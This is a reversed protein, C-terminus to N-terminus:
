QHAPLWLHQSDRSPPWPEHFNSFWQELHYQSTKSASGTILSLAIPCNGGSIKLFMNTTLEIPISFILHTQGQKSLLIFDHNTTESFVM